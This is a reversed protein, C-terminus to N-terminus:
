PYVEIFPFFFISKLKAYFSIAKIQFQGSMKNYFIFFVIKEELLIILSKGFFTLNEIITLSLSLLNLFKTTLNKYHMCVLNTLIISFNVVNKQRFVEIKFFLAFKLKYIRHALIGYLKYFKIM